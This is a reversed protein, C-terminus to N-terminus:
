WSILPGCKPTSPPSTVDHLASDGPPCALNSLDQLVQDSGHQRGVLNKPSGPVVQIYPSKMPSLHAAHAHQHAPTAPLVDEQMSSRPPSLWSHAAHAQMTDGGIGGPLRLRDPNAEMWREIQGDGQGPQPCEPPVRVAGATPETPSAHMTADAAASTDAVLADSLHTTPSKSPLGPASSTAPVREVAAATSRKAALIDCARVCSPKKSDPESTPIAQIRRRKKVLPKQVAMDAPLALSPKGALGSPGNQGTISTAPTNFAANSASSSQLVTPQSAGADGKADTASAVIGVDAQKNTTQQTATQEKGIEYPRVCGEGIVHMSLADLLDPGRVKQGQVSVVLDAPWLSITLECADSLQKSCWELRM